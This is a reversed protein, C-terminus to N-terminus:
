NGPTIRVAQHYMDPHKFDGPDCDAAHKGIIDIRADTFKGFKRDPFDGDNPRNIRTHIWYDNDTTRTVDVDGFPLVIRFHIPEPKKPNGELVVGLVNDGMSRIKLHGGTKM